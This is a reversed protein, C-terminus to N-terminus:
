DEFSSFNTTLYIVSMEKIHTITLKLANNYDGMRGIFQKIDDHMASQLFSAAKVALQEDSFADKELLNDNKIKSEIDKQLKELNNLINEFKQNQKKYRSKIDLYSELSHKADNHAMETKEEVELFTIDTMMFGEQFIQERKFDSLTYDDNKWRNRSITNLYDDVGKTDNAKKFRDELETGLKDVAELIEIANNGKKIDVAIRYKHIKDRDKITGKISPTNLVKTIGNLANEFEDESQKNKLIFNKIKNYISKFFEIIKKFIKIVFEKIKDVGEVFGEARAQSNIIFSVNERAIKVTNKQIQHMSLSNYKKYSINSPKYSESGIAMGNKAMLDRISINNSM